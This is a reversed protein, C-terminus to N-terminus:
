LHKVFKRLHLVLKIKIGLQGRVLINAKSGKSTVTIDSHKFM